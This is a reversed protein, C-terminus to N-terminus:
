MFGRMDTLFREVVEAVGEPCQSLAKYVGKCATSIDRPYMLQDYTVGLEETLRRLVHISVEREGREVSSLFGPSINVREALGAQTYGKRKRFYELNPGLYRSKSENKM